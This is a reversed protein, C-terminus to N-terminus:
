LDGEKPSKGKERICMGFIGKKLLNMKRGLVCMNFNEKLLDGKRRSVFM